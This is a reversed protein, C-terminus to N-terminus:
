GRDSAQPRDDAAAGHYTRKSWKVLVNQFPRNISWRDLFFKKEDDPLVSCCYAFALKQWDDMGAFAQKHQRIWGDATGGKAALLIERRLVASASPFMASLKPFHNLSPNRAFLSLILLAFYENDRVEPSELLALLRGGIALWDAPPVQKVSGLYFCINAFCPALDEIHDLSM